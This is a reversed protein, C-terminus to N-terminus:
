VGSIKTLFNGFVVCTEKAIEFAKKQAMAIKMRFDKRNDFQMEIKGILDKSHCFILFTLDFSCDSLGLTSLMHTMKHEYSLSYFPVGGRLAFVISHYRAGVVFEANNVIVQQIDCNYGDDLVIVECNNQIQASLKKMYKQDCGKGYLQPLLIVKLGKKIFMEILATYLTDLQNEDIKKFDPHWVYLENPVLVVYKGRILDQLGDPIQFDFSRDLFATDISPIYKIGYQQAYGQSKMDRLSLFSVNKLVHLSVHKFLFNRPVPGFSISYVATPKNLKISIYLRWLYRWDRYPGINVGGPANVVIDARSIIGLEEELPSRKLLFRTISLPVLFSLVIVVKDYFGLESSGYHGIDMGGCSIMESEQVDISNYLIEVRGGCSLDKVSRLFAKGAAEDGRNSTHQNLILLRM